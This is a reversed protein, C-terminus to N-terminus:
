LGNIAIRSTLSNALYRASVSVFFDCDVQPIDLPQQGISHAADVMSLIGYKKCLKVISQWPYVVRTSDTGQVETSALQQCSV